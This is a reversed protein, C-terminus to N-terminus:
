FHLGVVLGKADSKVMHFTFISLSNSILLVIGVYDLHQVVGFIYSRSLSGGEVSRIPAVNWSIDYNVSCVTPTSSEMYQLFRFFGM